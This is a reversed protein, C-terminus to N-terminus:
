NCRNIKSGGVVIKKRSKTIKKGLKDHLLLYLEGWHVWHHREKGITLLHRFHQVIEFHQQQWVQSIQFSWSLFGSVSLQLSVLCLQFNKGKRGDSISALHLITADGADWCHQGVPVSGRPLGEAGRLCCCDRCSSEVSLGTWGPLPLVAVEVVQILGGFGNFQALCWPM